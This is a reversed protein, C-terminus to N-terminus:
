SELLRSSELACPSTRTRQRERARKWHAGPMTAQPGSGEFSARSAEAALHGVAVHEDSAEHLAGRLRRQLRGEGAVAVDLGGGEAAGWGGYYTSARRGYGAASATAQLQLSLLLWLLCQKQM